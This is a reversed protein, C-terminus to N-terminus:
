EMVMYIYILSSIMSFLFETKISSLGTNYMQVNISEVCSCLMVTYIWKLNVVILREVGELLFYRIEKNRIINSGTTFYNLEKSVGQMDTNKKTVSMIIVYFLM